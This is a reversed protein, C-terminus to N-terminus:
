ESKELSPNWRRNWKKYTDNWMAITWANHINEPTLGIENLVESRSDWHKDTVGVCVEVGCGRSTCRVSAVSYPEGCNHYKTISVGSVQGGCFPCPLPEVAEGFTKILVDKFKM